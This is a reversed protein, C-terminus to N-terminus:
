VRNKLCSSPTFTRLNNLRNASRSHRKTVALNIQSPVIELGSRFDKGVFLQILDIYFMIGLFVVSGILTFLFGVNGYMAKSGKSTSHRFFFPEAAYNFAQTFLSMLVALKLTAGYTGTEARNEAVSEPLINSLLPLAGLSNIIGALGVVILPLAYWIMRKWYVIDFSWEM